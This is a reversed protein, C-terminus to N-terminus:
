QSSLWSDIIEKNKELFNINNRVTELAIKRYNEGAGAEPYKQFFAEMEDLRQATAFKKTVESIMRAMYRDNLTFRDVLNLWENRVFDWVIPEGVRNWSMYILLTFYDQRRIISEDKALELLYSLIWPENIATLGRLLKAKEQANSEQRYLDLMWRWVQENGVAKMGFSYVIERLDPSIKAGNEKMEMLYQGAIRNADAGYSCMKKLIMTRLKIKEISDNAQSTWGLEQYPEELLSALYSNLKSFVPTFYLVDAMDDLSLFATEWPAVSREKHGLYLTMNLAVELPIRGAKSLAFADNLLSTRDSSSLSSASTQLLQSFQQWDELPYQVRYYGYQGVNFKVLGGDDNINSYFFNQFIVAGGRPASSSLNRSDFCCCQPSSSKILKCTSPKKISM